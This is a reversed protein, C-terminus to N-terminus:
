GQGVLEGILFVPAKNSFRPVDALVPGSEAALAKHFSEVGDFTLTALISSTPKSGDPTGVIKAVTWGTMGFPGFRQLVMPMHSALYYDLDFTADAVNPYMVSIVGAM